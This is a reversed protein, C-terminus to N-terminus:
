ARQEIRTETRLLDSDGAIIARRQAVIGALDDVPEPGSLLRLEEFLALSPEGKLVLVQRERSEINMDIAPRIGLAADIENRGGM